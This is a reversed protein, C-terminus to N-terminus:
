IQEAGPRIGERIFSADAASIPSLLVVEQKRFPKPPLIQLRGKSILGLLIESILSDDPVAHSM